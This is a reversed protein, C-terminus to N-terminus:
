SVDAATPGELWLHSSSDSDKWDLAKRIEHGIHNPVCGLLIFEFNAARLLVPSLLQPFLRSTCSSLVENIEVHSTFTLSSFFCDMSVFFM